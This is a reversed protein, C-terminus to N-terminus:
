VEEDLRREKGPISGEKDKDGRNYCSSLFIQLNEKPIIYKNGVRVSRLRGEKLLRYLMSRGIHLYVAAQSPTVVDPLEEFHCSRIQDNNLWSMM